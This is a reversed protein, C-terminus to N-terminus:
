AVYGFYCLVLRFIPWFVVGFTVLGGGELKMALFVTFAIRVLADLLIPWRPVFRSIIYYAVPYGVIGIAYHAADAALRPPEYGLYAKSLSIV